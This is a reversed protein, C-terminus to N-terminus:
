FSIPIPRSIQEQPNLVFEGKQKTDWTDEVDYSIGALTKANPIKWSNIDTKTVTIEKGSNDIAKFKSVYKGFDYVKYTGPVMAPMHYIITDVNMKPTVLNVTLLDNHVKTLDVTFQYTNDQQATSILPLCILGVVSFFSRQIFPLLCSIFRKM